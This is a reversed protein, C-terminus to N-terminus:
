QMRSSRHDRPSRNEDLQQQQQPALHRSREARAMQEAVFQQVAPSANELGSPLSVHAGAVPGMSPAAAATARGRNGGDLHPEFRAAIAEAAAEVGNLQGYHGALGGLHAMSRPVRKHRLEHLEAETPRAPDNQEVGNGQPSSASSRGQPPRPTTPAAVAAAATTSTARSRGNGRPAPRSRAPRRAGGGAAAVRATEQDVAARVAEPSLLGAERLSELRESFSAELAFGFNHLLALNLGPALTELQRSFEEIRQSQAPLPNTEQEILRGDLYFPGASGREETPALDGSTRARKAARSQTGAGDSARKRNRRGSASCSESTIDDLSPLGADEPTGQWPHAVPLNGSAVFGGQAAEAAAATPNGLRAAAAAPTAVCTPAPPHALTSPPTPESARPVAARGRPLPAPQPATEAASVAGQASGGLQERLQAVERALRANERLSDRLREEMQALLEDRFAVGSALELSSRHEAEYRRVADEAEAVMENEMANAPRPSSDGGAAERRAAMEGFMQRRARLDGRLIEFRMLCNTAEDGLVPYDRALASSRLPRGSDLWTKAASALRARVPTDLDETTTPSSPSSVSARSPSASTSAQSQTRAVSARAPSVFSPTEPRPPPPMQTQSAQQPMTPRMRPTPQSAQQPMVPRMSPTPMPRQAQQQSAEPMRSPPMQQQAPMRPTSMIPPMRPTPMPREIQQHSAEPINTTPMNFQAPMRPTPMNPPMRPTPMIRQGQQQSAEPIRSIPTQIQTPMRPTPMTSPMSPQQQSGEPMRQMPTQIQASVRPTPMAPPMSAQQQPMEFNPPPMQYQYQPQSQATETEQVPPVVSPPSSGQSQSSNEGGSSPGSSAPGDIQQIQAEIKKKSGRPARPARPKPPARPKAQGRPARPKKAKGNGNATTEEVPAPAPQPTPTRSFRWNRLATERALNELNQAQVAVNAAEVLTENRTRVYHTGPAPPKYELPDKEKKKSNSKRKGKTNAEAEAAAQAAAAQRNAYYESFHQEFPRNLDIHAPYGQLVQERREAATTYYQQHQTFTANNAPDPYAPAPDMGHQSLHNPNSLDILNTHGNTDDSSPVSGAQNTAFSMDVPSVNAPAVVPSSTLDITSTSVSVNANGAVPSTSLDIVESEISVIINGSPNVAVPSTSLDIVEANPNHNVNGADLPTGSAVPLAPEMNVFENGAPHNADSVQDVFENSASPNAAHAQNIADLNFYNEGYAGNAFDMDFNMDLVNTNADADAVPHPHASEKNVLDNDNMNGEPHNATTMVTDNVNTDAAVVQHATNMGDVDTGNPPTTHANDVVTADSGSGSAVAHASHMNDFNVGAYRNAQDNDVVNADRDSAVHQASSDMNGFDTGAQAYQDASAPDVDVVNVNAETGHAANTAAMNIDVFQKDTGAYQNAQADDVGNVNADTGHTAANADTAAMDIDVFQNDTGATQNAFSMDVDNVNVNGDAAVPYTLNIDMDMNAFSTGATYDSDGVVMDFFSTETGTSDNGFAMNADNDNTEGFWNATANANSDGATDWEALASDFDFNEMSEFPNTNFGALRTGTGTGTQTFGALGLGTGTQTFGGFFNLNPANQNENENGTLFMNMHNNNSNMNMDEANLNVNNGAFPSSSGNINEFNAM